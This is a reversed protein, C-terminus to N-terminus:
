PTLDIGHNKKLYEEGEKITPNIFVYSEVLFERNSKMPIEGSVMKNLVEYSKDAAKKIALGVEGKWPSKPNTVQRIANESGGVGAILISNNRSGSYMRLATLAGQARLDSTAYIIDIDKRGRLTVEVVDRARDVSGTDEYKHIFTTDALVSKFGDTFGKERKIDSIVTRSNLVLVNAKRGPNNKQFYEAFRKGLKYCTKYETFGIYPATEEDSERIGHVAIPIGASQAQKVAVRAIAPEHQFLLIADVNLALLRRIAMSTTDFAVGGEVEILNFNHKNSLRKWEKRYSSDFSQYRISNYTFISNFTIHVIGFTPKGSDKIMEKKGAAQATGPLFGFTFTFITIIFLLKM